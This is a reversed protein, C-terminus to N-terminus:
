VYFCVSVVRVVVIHLFHLCRSVVNVSLFRVNTSLKGGFYLLGYLSFCFVFHWDFSLRCSLSIHAFGSKEFDWCLKLVNMQLVTKYVCVHMGFM